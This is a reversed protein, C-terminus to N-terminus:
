QRPRPAIPATITGTTSNVIWNQEPGIRRSIAVGIRRNSFKALFEDSPFQTTVITRLNRAVRGEFLALMFEEATETFAQNGIDDILLVPVQCLERLMASDNGERALRNIERRLDGAQRFEIQQGAIFAKELLRVGARTKWTSSSGQITVGYRDKINWAATIEKAWNPVLLDDATRYLEPVKEAFWGSRRTERDREEQIIASRNKREAEADCHDCVLDAPDGCYFCKGSPLAQSAIAESVAKAAEPNNRAARAMEDYQNEQM